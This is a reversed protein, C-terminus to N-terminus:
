GQIASQARYSNEGRAASRWNIRDVECVALLPDVYEGLRSFLGGSSM